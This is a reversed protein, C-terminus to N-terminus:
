EHHEGSVSEAPKAYQACMASLDAHEASLDPAIGSSKPVFLGIGFNGGLIYTLEYCCGHDEILEASHVFDPSGFHIDPELYNHLIPCGCEAELMDVTDGAEVVIMYGLIDADYPDDETCTAGECIQNFRLTVLARIDPDTIDKVASPDRLIMM